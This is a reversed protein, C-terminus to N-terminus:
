EPRASAAVRLVADQYNGSGEDKKSFIGRERVWQQTAEYLSESYPEFVLREGPGFRRVDVLAAHREPLEELYYHVYNQHMTDIDTQALRLAEYYRSVQDETVGEPVMAAIMFTCDLIKRYGLQELMYLQPGFVTVASAQGSLIQDVRDAPTGGFVLKIQSEDLFPELAQITTYHSGSQYGVHIETDALEEPKTVKSDAPVLIASPSVSYCEGWLKGHSASAAMNVTWHCACSISADRGAEYTQYAGQKNSLQGAEAVFEPAQRTLLNHARLEYNELGATAFYGKEHAVWEQLRGHPNIVFQDMM